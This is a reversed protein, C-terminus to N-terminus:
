RVVITRNEVPRVPPTQSEIIEVRPEVLRKLVIRLQSTYTHKGSIVVAKENAHPASFHKLASDFLKPSLTIKGKIVKKVRLQATSSETQVWIFLAEYGAARAKKAIEQREIRAAAVGDYIFTRHTKYLEDLMYDSVRRIITQEDNTNTPENFLEDHLRGNSVLPANFTDAFREAFFSKGSGPIGVMVIIHPKSLSLSKM